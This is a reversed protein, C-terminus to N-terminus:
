RRWKRGRKLYGKLERTRGKRRKKWFVKLVGGHMQAVPPPLPALDFMNLQAPKTRVPAFLGLEDAAQMEWACRAEWAASPGGLTRLGTPGIARWMCGGRRDPAQELRWRPPLPYVTCVSM